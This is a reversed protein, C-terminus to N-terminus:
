DNLQMRRVFIERVTRLIEIFFGGPRAAIIGGGILTFVLLRWPGPAIPRIVELLIMCFYSGFLPGIISGEGGIMVAIVIEVMIYLDLISHPAVSGINHVWLAGGLGAIFNSIMFSVLKYKFANLGLNGVLEEDQYIAKFVFGVDSTSLKWVLFSFAITISLTLLYTKYREPVPAFVPLPFLGMHGGTIGTLYGIRVLSTLFLPLAFSLMLFYPGRIRFAPIILITGIIMSSFASICISPYLPLRLHHTLIASSYGGLGIFFTHGLSLYGTHGSSIDWSIVFLAFINAFTLIGLWHLSRIYLPVTFLLVVIAIWAINTVNNERKM